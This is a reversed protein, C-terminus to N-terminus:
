PHTIKGAGTIAAGTNSTTFRLRYKGEAIDSWTVKDEYRDCTFRKTKETKWGFVSRSQLAVSYKKGNESDCTFEYKVDGAWDNKWSRSDLQHMFDAGFTFTGYAWAPSAGFTLALAIAGGVFVTRRKMKGVTPM